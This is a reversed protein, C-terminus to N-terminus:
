SGLFGSQLGLLTTKQVCDNWPSDSDNKFSHPGPITDNDLKIDKMSSLAVQEPAKEPCVEELNAGHGEEKIRQDM